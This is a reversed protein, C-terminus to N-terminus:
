TALRNMTYGEATAKRFVAIAIVWVHSRQASSPSRWPQELSGVHSLPESFRSALAGVRTSARSDRCSSAALMESYGVSVTPPLGSEITEPASPFRQNVLGARWSSPIILGVVFANWNKGTGVGPPIGTVIVAPGSPLRQNVSCDALKEPCIPSILRLVCAM